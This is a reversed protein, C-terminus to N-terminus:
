LKLSVTQVTYVCWLSCETQWWQYPLPSLKNGHFCVPLVNRLKSLVSPSPPYRAYEMRLWSSTGPRWTETYLPSRPSIACGLQLRAATAWCTKPHPGTWRRRMVLSSSWRKYDSHFCSVISNNAPEQSSKLQIIIVHSFLWHTTWDWVWVWFWGWRPDSETHM